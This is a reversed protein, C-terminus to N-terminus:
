LNCDMKKESCLRISRLEGMMPTMAHRRRILKPAINLRTEVLLSNAALKMSKLRSVFSIQFAIVLDNM